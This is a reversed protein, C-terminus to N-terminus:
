KQMICIVGWLRDMLVNHRSRPLSSVPYLQLTCLRLCTARRPPSVWSEGSKSGSSVRPHDRHPQTHLRILFFCFLFCGGASRWVRVTRQRRLFFFFFGCLLLFIPSICCFYIFVSFPLFLFSSGVGVCACGQMELCQNIIKIDRIEVTTGMKWIDNELKHWVAHGNKKICSIVLKTAHHIHLESQTNHLCLPPSVRTNTHKDKDAGAWYNPSSHGPAWFM